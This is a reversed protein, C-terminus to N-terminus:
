VPRDMMLTHKVKDKKSSKAHITMKVSRLRSNNMGHNNGIELRVRYESKKETCIVGERDFYFDSGSLEAANGTLCSKVLYDVMQSEVSMQKSYRYDALGLPLLALVGVLGVSMLGIAVV